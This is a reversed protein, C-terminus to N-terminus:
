WNGQRPVDVAETSGPPAIYAPPPTPETSQVLQVFGQTTGTVSNGWNSQASWNADRARQRAVRSPYKVGTPFLPWHDYAWQGLFGAGFSIAGDEVIEGINLADSAPNGDRWSDWVQALVNGGAGGGAQLAGQLLARRIGGGLTLQGLVRNGLNLLGGAGAALGSM